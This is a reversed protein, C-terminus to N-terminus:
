WRDNRDGKCINKQMTIITRLMWCTNGLVCDEHGTYNRDYSVLLLLVIVAGIIRKTRQKKKRKLNMLRRIIM